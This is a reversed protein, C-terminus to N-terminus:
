EKQCPYEGLEALIQRNEVRDPDNMQLV